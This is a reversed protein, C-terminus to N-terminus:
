TAGEPAIHISPSGRPDRCERAVYRLACSQARADARVRRCGGDPGIVSLASAAAHPGSLLSSVADALALDAALAPPEAPPEDPDVPRLSGVLDGLCRLPRGAADHLVAARLAVELMREQVRPGRQEGQPLM